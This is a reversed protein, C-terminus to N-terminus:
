KESMIKMVAREIPELKLLRAEQAQLRARLKFLLGEFQGFLDAISEEVEPLVPKEVKSPPPTATGAKRRKSVIQARMSLINNRNADPYVEQVAKVLDNYSAGLHQRIIDSQSLNGSMPKGEKDKKEEVVLVTEDSVTEVPVEAPASTQPSQYRTVFGAYSQRLADAVEMCNSRHSISLEPVGAQVLTRKIEYIGTRGIQSNLFAEKIGPLCGNFSYTRSRWIFCVQKLDKVEEPFDTQDFGVVLTMPRSRLVKGAPLPFPMKTQRESGGENYLWKKLQQYNDSALYVKRVGVNELFSLVELQKKRTMVLGLLVVNDSLAIIEAQLSEGKMGLCLQWHTLWSVSPHELDKQRLWTLSSLVVSVREPLLPFGNLIEM